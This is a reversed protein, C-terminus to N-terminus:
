AESCAVSATIPSLKGRAGCHSPLAGELDRGAARDDVLAAEETCGAPLRVGSLENSHVSATVRKSREASGEVADSQACMGSTSPFRRM